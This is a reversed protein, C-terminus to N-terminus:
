LPGVASQALQQPNLFEKALALSDEIPTREKMSRIGGDPAVPEAVEKRGEQLLTEVVKGGVLFGTFGEDSSNQRHQVHGPLQSRGHQLRWRHSVRDNRTTRASRRARLSTPAEFASNLLWHCPRLEVRGALRRKM